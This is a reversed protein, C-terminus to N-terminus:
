DIFKLKGSNAAKIITQLIYHMQDYDYPADHIEAHDGRCVPMTAIDSIKDGM